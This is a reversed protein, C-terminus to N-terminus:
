IMIYYSIKTTYINYIHHHLMINPPILTIIIDHYLMIDQPYIHTLKKKQGTLIKWMRTNVGERKKTIWSHVGLSSYVQFNRELRLFSRCLYYFHKLFHIPIVCHWTGVDKLPVLTELFTALILILTLTLHTLCTTHPLRRNVTRVSVLRSSMFFFYLAQPIVMLCKTTESFYRCNKGSFFM